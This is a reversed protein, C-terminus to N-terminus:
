TATEREAHVSVNSTEPLMILFRELDNTNHNSGSVLGTQYNM